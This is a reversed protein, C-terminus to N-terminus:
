YGIFMVYIAFEGRFRLYVVVFLPLPRFEFDTKLICEYQFGTQVSGKEHTQLRNDEEDSSDPEKQHVM